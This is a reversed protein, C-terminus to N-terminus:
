FQELLYFCMKFLSSTAGLLASNTVIEDERRMWLGHTSKSGSLPSSSLVQSDAWDRCTNEASVTEKCKLLWGSVTVNFYLVTQLKKPM